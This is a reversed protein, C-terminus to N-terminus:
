ADRAPGGGETPRDVRGGRERAEEETDIDLALDLDAVIPTRVRRGPHRRRHRYKVFLARLADELGAVSLRGESLLSAASLGARLVTWTLNPVRLTALHLLDQWLLTGLVGAVLIGRRAHISRNRTGYGLGLLRYLFGLRLASTDAIVLHGPLVRVPEDGAAPVLRYRPKWASAGLREREAPAQVLPFWLDCPADRAYAEALARLSAGRLTVDCTLVAMPKGPNERAITEVATRINEAFSGDTDVRRVSPRVEGYVRAPGALYIPDFAGSDVVGDLVVEVLPRGDIRVAVGKYDSLPHKDAGSKPLTAAKRDSGGLIVLPLREL